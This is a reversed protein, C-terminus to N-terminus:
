HFKILKGKGMKTRSYEKNLSVEKVEIKGKKELLALAYLIKTRSYGKQKITLMKNGERKRRTRSSEQVSKVVLTLFPKKKEWTNAKMISDIILKFVSLRVEEMEEPSSLGLNYAELNLWAGGRVVDRIVEYDDHVLKEPILMERAETQHHLYYRKTDLVAACTENLSMRRITVEKNDVLQKPLKSLSIIIKNHILARSRHDGQYMEAMVRVEFFENLALDPYGDFRAGDFKADMNKPLEHYALVYEFIMAKAPYFMTGLIILVDVKELLNSGRLNGLHLVWEKGLLGTWDKVLEKLTVMGVKKGERQLQKILMTLKPKLRPLYIGKKTVKKKIIGLTAKSYSSDGKQTTVQYLISEPNQVIEPKFINVNVDNGFLHHLKDFHIENYTADLLKVPKDKALEFIREYFSVGFTFWSDPRYLEEGSSYAHGITSTLYHMDDIRHRFTQGDVMGDKSDRGPRGTIKTIKENIILSVEKGTASRFLYQLSHLESIIDVYHKVIPSGIGGRKIAKTIRRILKNLIKDENAIVKKFPKDLQNWIKDLQVTEIHTVWEGAQIITKFKKSGYFKDDFQQLENEPRCYLLSYKLLMHTTFLWLTHEVKALLIEDYTPNDSLKLMEKKFCNFRKTDHGINYNTVKDAAEDVYIMSLESTIKEAYMLELPALVVKVEKNKLAIYQNIFPCGSREPCKKCVTEKPNHITNYMALTDPFIDPDDKLLCSREWGELHVVSMGKKELSRGVSYLHKHNASFFGIRKVKDKEDTKSDDVVHKIFGSTKRGAGPQGPNIYIGSDPSEYFQERSVEKKSLV